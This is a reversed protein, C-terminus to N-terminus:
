SICMSTTCKQSGVNRGESSAKSSFDSGSSSSSKVPTEKEFNSQNPQFVPMVLFHLCIAQDSSLVWTRDGLPASLALLLVIVALDGFLGSLFTYLVWFNCLSVLFIRLFAYSHTLFDLGSSVRPQTCFLVAYAHTLFGLIQTLIRLFIKAVRFTGNQINPGPWQM